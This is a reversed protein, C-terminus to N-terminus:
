RATSVAVLTIDYLTTPVLPHSVGAFGGWRRCIWVFGVWRRLVLAPSGGWRRRIVRVFVLALSGWGIVVM